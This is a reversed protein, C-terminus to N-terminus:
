YFGVPTHLTAWIRMQMVGSRCNVTLKKNRWNCFLTEYETLKHLAPQHYLKFHNSIIYNILVCNLEWGNMSTSHLSRFPHQQRRSYDSWKWRICIRVWRHNKEANRLNSHHTGPNFEIQPFTQARIRICVLPITLATQNRLIVWSLSWAIEIQWLRRINLSNDVTIFICWSLSSGILKNINNVHINYIM